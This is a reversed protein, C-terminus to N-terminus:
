FGQADDAAPIVYVLRDNQRAIQQVLPAIGPVLGNLDEDVIHLSGIVHRRSM